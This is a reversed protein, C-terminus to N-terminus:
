ETDGPKYAGMAHELNDLDIKPAASRKKRKKGADEDREVPFSVKTIFNQEDAGQTFEILYEEMAPGVIKYGKEEIANVLSVYVPLLERYPGRYVKSAVNYGGISKVNEDDPDANNVPLFVELDGYDFFFQNLFHEHFIASLSGNVPYNKEACMKYIEAVRDWWCTQNATFYSRYRTYIVPREPWFSIECDDELSEIGSNEGHSKVARMVQEATRRTQELQAELVAIQAELDAAKADLAQHINEITPYDALLNKIEAFSFGRLKLASIIIATQVQDNSYYRYKNEGHEAPSLLGKEDYYRLSKRSLNSIEAVEGITFYEKEYISETDPSTNM